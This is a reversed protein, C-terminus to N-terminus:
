AMRDFRLGRARAGNVELASVEGAADRLLRVDWWGDYLAGPVHFRALDATLGEARNPGSKAHPGDANWGAAEVRWTAGVDSCHFAGALALAQRAAVKTLASKHGADTHLVLGNPGREIAFRFGSRLAHLMGDAQPGLPFAVGHQRAMPKGHEDLWLDLTAGEETIFTGDLAELSPMAAVPHLVADGELAAEMVAMGMAHADLGGNNTAIIVTLRRAAVRLFATKYGPWLGGHSVLKLGRWADVELGRAYTNATGNTFPVLEQLQAEVVGGSLLNLSLARAWLALDEIGSVLGGEGGLPFGHGARVFGSGKPMYGTALGEVPVMVDPTHQTRTMGLPGFIRDELFEALPLRSAKEIVKGLLWFNTNSYLFRSGPAFNVGTSRTIAADMDAPKLPHSLDVGGARLLEFIDRLGATNRMLQDLTVTEAWAPLGPLHRSLKDEVKLMGEAALMLIGACTFQKSVSAIRFGTQPTIPQALEISALGSQRRLLLEGDRAVGVAAGAGELLPILLLGVRRELRLLDLDRM